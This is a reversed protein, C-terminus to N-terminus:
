ERAMNLLVEPCPQDKSILIMPIEDRTLFDFARYQLDYDMMRNIFNIEKSGLVVIRGPSNEFYGTLELGPRIVDAELVEREMSNDDGSIRRYGFYNYVDKVLVKKRM